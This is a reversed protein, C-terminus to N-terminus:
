CFFRSYRGLLCIPKPFPVETFYALLHRFNSGAYKEYMTVILNQLQFNGTEKLIYGLFLHNYKRFLHVTASGDYLLQLLIRSDLKSNYQERWVISHRRDSGLFHM